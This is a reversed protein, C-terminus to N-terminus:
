RHQRHIKNWCTALYIKGNVQNCRFTNNNGNTVILAKNQSNSVKNNEIINNNSIVYIGFLCNDIINNSITNSDATVTTHIGEDCNTVTNGRITAKGGGEIAIGWGPSSSVPDGLTGDNEHVYNNEIRASLGYVAIGVDGCHSVDNNVAYYGLSYQTGSYDWVTVGNWGIYSIKSNVVGNNYAPENSNSLFYVGSVGVHSIDAGDIVNNSGGRVMIGHYEDGAQGPIHAQNASNGDITPNHILWNNVSNLRIAPSNM